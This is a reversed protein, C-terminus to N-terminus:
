SPGHPVEHGCNQCVRSKEYHALLWVTIRTRMLGRVHHTTSVRRPNRACNTSFHHLASPYEYPKVVLLGVKKPLLRRAEVELESPVAVYLLDAYRRYSELQGEVGRLDRLTAKCEVLRTTGDSVDYALVDIRKRNPLGIEKLAVRYFPIHLWCRVAEAVQGHTIKMVGTTCLLSLSPM